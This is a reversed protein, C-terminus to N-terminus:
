KDLLIILCRILVPFFDTASRTSYNASKNIDALIFHPQFSYLLAYYYISLYTVKVFDDIQEQVRRPPVSPAAVDWNFLHDAM